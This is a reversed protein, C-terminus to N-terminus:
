TRSNLTILIGIIIFVIGLFYQRTFNEHLIFHSAIPVLIFSVAMFPYIRNLDSKQLVWVWGLTTVAYLCLAMFLISLSPIDYLNGTAHFGQASKKFLIQGTAIGIVCLLAIISQFMM